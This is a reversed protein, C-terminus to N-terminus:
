KILWTRSEKGEKVVSAFVDPFEQELKRRDIGVTPKRPRWTAVVTGDVVVETADGVALKMDAELMALWDNARQAARRADLYADWQDADITIKMGPHPTFVTALDDSRTAPPPTDALVHDRWWVQAFELADEFLPRDFTVHHEEYERGSRLVALWGAKTGTVGMQWQVQLFYDAPITDWAVRTTKADVPEGTGDPRRLMGDLSARAIPVSPHHHMAPLLPFREVTGHNDAFKGLVAEELRHGWELAPSEKQPGSRGTKEEWVQRPTCFKSLGCIAAIDSGGIGQARQQQWEPSGPEIIM